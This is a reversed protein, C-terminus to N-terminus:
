GDCRLNGTLDASYPVSPPTPFSAVVEEITISYSLRTAPDMYYGSSTSAEMHINHGPALMWAVANLTIERDFPGVPLRYAAVVQDITTYPNSKGMEYDLLEVFMWAENGDVTGRLRLKPFGVVPICRESGRPNKLATARIVSGVTPPNALPNTVEEKPAPGGISPPYHFVTPSPNWYRDGAQADPKPPPWVMRNDDTYEPPVTNVFSTTTTGPLPYEAATRIVGDQAQWEVEAGTDVPLGRVYRDMWAFTRERWTTDATGYPCGGHGFCGAFLKVPAAPDVRKGLELYVELADGLPHGTDTTGQALFTPVTIRPARTTTSRDAFWALLESTLEGNTTSQCFADHIQDAVVTDATLADRSCNNPFGYGKRYLWPWWEATVNNPFFDHNFRGWFQNPAIADLRNEFAATVLQIGGGNSAGVWGVRPDGPGDQVIEDCTGLYDILRSVDAVEYREDAIHYVGGSEGHGRTDWSLVGYGRELLGDFLPELEANDHLGGPKGTSASDKRHGGGGHTMLVVPVKALPSAGLPLHLSAVISAGASDVTIPDTITAGTHWPNPITSGCPAAVAGTPAPALLVVFALLPVLWREPRRRPSESM